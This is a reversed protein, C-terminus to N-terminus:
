LDTTPMSVKQNMKAMAQAMAPNGNNASHVTYMLTATAMVLRMEPGVYMSAGYKIFLEDIIPAFQDQNDKAVRSLGHLNLNLPNYHRSGEEIGSLLLVYLHSGMHGDKQGLQQEIFHLEDKIEADSSKGSLKNRSKVHPFRERYADIKDLAASKDFEVKPPPPPEPAPPPASAKQSLREEKKAATEAKMMAVKDKPKTKKAEITEAIVDADLGALMLPDESM